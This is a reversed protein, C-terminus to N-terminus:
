TKSLQDSGKISRIEIKNDAFAQHLNKLFQLANKDDGHVCLSDIKGQKILNIAQSVVEEVDTILANEQSRPMLMGDDLYRRDAFGERVFRLGKAKAALEMQSQPLGYLYLSPDFDFVADAIAEAFHRDRTAMNYLAGHPKVHNIRSKFGRVIGELAGLQYLMLQYVQGPSLELEFRGFGERDAFGPHAGIAVKHEIALQTTHSMHQEDGAHYGCAINTSSIYPMLAADLELGADGPMEGMDCNLDIYSM